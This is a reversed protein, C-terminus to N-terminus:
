QTIRRGECRTLLANGCIGLRISLHSLNSAQIALYECLM